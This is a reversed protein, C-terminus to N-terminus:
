YWRSRLFKDDSSDVACCNKIAAARARLLKKLDRKALTWRSYLITTVKM